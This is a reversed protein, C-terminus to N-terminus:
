KPMIHLVSLVEMAELLNVHLHIPVSPHLPPAVVYRVLESPPPVFKSHVRNECKCRGVGQRIHHGSLLYVKISRKGISQM